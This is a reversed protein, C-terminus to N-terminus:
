WSLHHVLNSHYTSLFSAISLRRPNQLIYPSGSDRGTCQFLLEVQLDDGQLGQMLGAASAILATLSRRFHQDNHPLHRMAAVPEGGHRTLILCPM